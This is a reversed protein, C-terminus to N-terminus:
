EKVTPRAAMAKDAIDYCYVLNQDRLYLKGDVIVPHVWIKGKPKRLTSQPELTFRSKEKWGETSAEILVVHGEDESLCYFHGDAYAIAGKGLVDKDQWAKEGSEFDQCTWGKNDSFGYVHDGFLIAGGHHNGMVKNEYVKEVTLDNGITILMCGAGYGSTAYVQNGKIIPTPIVAVRGPWPMTWLRKGDALDVGVLETEMLQVLVTKGDHAMPMISSYHAVGTVEKAQWVLEGNQKNLAVIAGVDGGPTCLVLDGQILPAETFGWNPVTGGLDQMSKTWVIEGDAAKVCVLNGGAAMAYIFEGDVTPTSRPGDGWDNEYIDGMRAAWLEKGTTADLCILDEGGDRGGMTYLRDGVIAPGAYGVGCHEFMWVRAPGGEPWSQMLGTETSIDDRKPGRWQPWDAAALSSWMLSLVACILTSRVLM